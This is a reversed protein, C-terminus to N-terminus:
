GGCWGRNIPDSTNEQAPRRISEAQEHKSQHSEDQISLADYEKKVDPRKAFVQSKFEKYNM